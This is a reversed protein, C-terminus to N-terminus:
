LPPPHKSPFNLLKRRAFVLVAILAVALAAQPLPYEPIPFVPSASQVQLTFTTINASMAPDDSFVDFIAGQAPPLNAPSTLTSGVQVVGGTSNYYTVVIEIAQAFSKGTNNVQGTVHYIGARDVFSSQRIVQIDRYPQTNSINAGSVSVGCVNGTANAFIDFPSKQQPLLLNIMAYDEIMSSPNCLSANVTVQGLTNPGTNQVEGVVHLYGLTDTYASYSLVVANGTQAYATAFTLLLFIVTAPLFFAVSKRVM